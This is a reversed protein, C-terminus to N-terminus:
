PPCPRCHLCFPRPRRRDPRHPLLPLSPPQQDQDGTADCGIETQAKHRGRRQDTWAQPPFPPGPCTAHAPHSRSAARRNASPPPIWSGQRCPRPGLRVSGPGMPAESEGPGRTGQGSTGEDGRATARKHNMEERRNRATRPDQRRHKSSATTDTGDTGQSHQEGGEGEERRRDRAGGLRADGRGMRISQNFEDPCPSRTERRTHGIGADVAEGEGVVVVVVDVVCPPVTGWGGSVVGRKGHWPSAHPESVVQNQGLPLSGRVLGDGSNGKREGGM